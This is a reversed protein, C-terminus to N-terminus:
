PRLGVSLGFTKVFEEHLGDTCGRRRFSVSLLLNVPSNVSVPVSWVGASVEGEGRGWRSRNPRSGRVSSGSSVRWFVKGSHHREM